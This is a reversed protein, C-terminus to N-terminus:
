GSLENVPPAQPRRVMRMRQLPPSCPSGLLSRVGTLGAAWATKFATTNVHVNTVWATPSPSEMGEEKDEETEKQAAVEKSGESNGKPEKQMASENSGEKEGQASKAKVDEHAPSGLLSRGFANKVEARQEEATNDKTTEEEPAEKPTEEPAEMSSETPLEETDEKTEKQVASVNSGEKQGQAIEAKADVQGSSGGLSWWSANEVEARKEEARRDKPTMEEPAEKPIEVYSTGANEDDFVLLEDESQQCFPANCVKNAKEDSCGADKMDNIFKGDKTTQDSEAVGDFPPVTATEQESLSKAATAPPEVVPFVQEYYLENVASLPQATPESSPELGKPVVDSSESVPTNCECEEPESSSELGKPVVDLFESTPTNQECEELSALTPEPTLEAAAAELSTQDTTSSRSLTMDSLKAAALEMPTPVPLGRCQPADALADVADGSETQRKCVQRCVSGGM